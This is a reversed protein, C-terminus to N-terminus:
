TSPPAPLHTDPKVPAGKLNMQFEDEIEQRIQDWNNRLADRKANREARPLDKLEGDFDDSHEWVAERMMGALTRLRARIDPEIFIGKEALYAQFANYADAAVQRRTQDNIRTLVRQAEVLRKTLAEEIERRQLNTFGRKEYYNEREEEDLQHIIVGDLRAKAILDGVKAAATNALRWVEPYVTFQIELLKNERSLSSSITHRVRELHEAQTAKFVENKLTETAKFKEINTNLSHEFNKLDKNLAHEVAKKGFFKVYSYAALWAVGGSFVPTGLWKFFSPLDIQLTV